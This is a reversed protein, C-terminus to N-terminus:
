NIVINEGAYFSDIAGIIDNLRKTQVYFGGLGDVVVYAKRDTLKYFQYTIEKDNEDTIKITVILKEPDSILANEEEETMIYSDMLRTGTIAAFLSKFITSHHRLFEETTGNIYQIRVTEAGVYIINGDKDKIPKETIEVQTGISNFVFKRGEPMLETKGDSSLIYIDDHTIWWTNGSADLFKHVGFTTVNRGTSSQAIVSTATAKGDDQNVINFTNTETPTIVEIKKTYLIGIEMIVTSVWDYADWELFNLTSGAIECITEFKFGKISTGNPVNLARMETFTYRNGNENKESIYITQKARIPTESDNLYIDREFSITYESSYVYEKSGDEKEVISKIKAAVLEDDTPSLAFVSQITPQSLRTLATDINEYNPRYSKWSTDSFKYPHAGEVTGTRDDLDIYTFNVLEHLGTDERKKISFDAVDYYDESTAPYILRPVVLDKAQAFLTNDISADNISSMDAPSLVYVADRKVGESNIYQMYYGNGTVLRDGIIFTHRIGETTVISVSTPVHEYEYPQGNEDTLIRKESVLGYESFEGNEDKIPNQLRDKAYPHGALYTLYSLKDADIEAFPAEKLVFSASDSETLTTFDYRYLSFSDNQNKIDISRIDESAVTRFMTLLEHDVFEGDDMYYIDPISRITCEGTEEDVKVTTGIATIYYLENSSIGIETELMNKDKDYMAFVGDRKIVYYKTGDVDIFPIVDNFYNYLFLCSSGLIVVALLFAVIGVKRRHM